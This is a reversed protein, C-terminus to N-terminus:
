SHFTSHPFLTVPEFPYRCLTCNVHIYLLSISPHLIVLFLWCYCCYCCCCSHLRQVIRCRFASACHVCLVCAYCICHPLTAYYPPAPVCIFGQRLPRLGYNRIGHLCCDYWVYIVHSVPVLLSPIMLSSSDRSTNKKVQQIKILLHSHRYRIYVVFQIAFLVDDYPWKTWEILFQLSLFCETSLCTITSHFLTKMLHSSSFMMIHKKEIQMYKVCELLAPVLLLPSFFYFFFHWVVRYQTHASM